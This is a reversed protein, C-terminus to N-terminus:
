IIRDPKAGKGPHWPEQPMTWLTGALETTGKVIRSPNFHQCTAEVGIKVIHSSHELQVSRQVELNKTKNEFVSVIYSWCHERRSGLVEASNEAFDKSYYKAAKVKKNVWINGAQSKAKVSYIRVEMWM